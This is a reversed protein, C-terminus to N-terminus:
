WRVVAWRDLPPPSTVMIQGGGMEGAPSPFDGDSRWGDPPLPTYQHTTDSVLSHTNIPLCIGLDDVTVQLFLTSRLTNVNIHSIHPVKDLVQRHLM